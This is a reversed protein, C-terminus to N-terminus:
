ELDEVHSPFDEITRKEYEESMVDSHKIDEKAEEQNQSDDYALYKRSEAKETHQFSKSEGLRAHANSHSEATGYEKL